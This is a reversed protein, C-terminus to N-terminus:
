IKNLLLFNSNRLSSSRDFTATYEAKHAKNIQAIFYDSFDAKGEMYEQYATWACDRDLIEFGL